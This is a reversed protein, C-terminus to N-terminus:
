SWAALLIALDSGDVAGDGNIDAGTASTGWSGMLRGLDYGDVVGDGTIDAVLHPTFALNADFGAEGDHSIWQSQDISSHSYASFYVQYYGPELLLQGEVCEATPWQGSVVHTSVLPQFNGGVLKRLHLSANAGPGHYTTCLEFDVHQPQDIQLHFEGTVQAYADAYAAGEGEGAGLFFDTQGHITLLDPAVTNVLLCQMSCYAQDDTIWQNFGVYDDWDTVWTLGPGDAPIEYSDVIEDASGGSSISGAYGAQYAAVTYSAEGADGMPLAPNALLLLGTSALPLSASATRM